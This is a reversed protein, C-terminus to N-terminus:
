AATTSAARQTRRVAAGVGVLGAMLLAYTEPEPVASAFVSGGYTVTGSTLPNGATDVGSGLVILRFPTNAAVTARFSVLDQRSGGAGDFSFSQLPSSDTEIVALSFKVPDFPSFLTGFLKVDTPQADFKFTDIIIDAASTSTFDASRFLM